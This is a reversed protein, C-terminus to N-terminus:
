CEGGRGKQLCDMRTLMHDRRWRRYDGTAVSALAAPQGNSKNFYYKGMTIEVDQLLLSLLSVRALAACLGDARVERQRGLCTLGETEVHTRYQCRESASSAEAATDAEGQRM